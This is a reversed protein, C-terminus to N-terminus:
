AQQSSTMKTSLNGTSFAICGMAHRNLIPEIRRSVLQFSLDLRAKEDVETVPMGMEPFSGMGM